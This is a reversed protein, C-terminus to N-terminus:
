SDQSVIKWSGDPQRCATGYTQVKDGGVTSTATYERCYNGDDARYTDRPTLQHGRASDPNRWEITRGDPAHELAQDLCLYDARDMTRGIEGGLFVGAVAGGIIAAIRGRGDGIQSGAAAGAAGGLMQGILERNCRGVDLDLPAQPLGTAYTHGRRGPPAWPPPGAHAPPGARRGPGGCKYEEKVGDPGAKYEYKCNGSKWEHKVRGGHEYKEEYGYGGKKGHGRGHGSEDKWPDALGAGPSAFMTAM